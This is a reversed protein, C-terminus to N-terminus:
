LDAAYVFGGQRSIFYVSCCRRRYQGEGSIEEYHERDLQHDQTGCFFSIISLVVKICFGTLAPLQETLYEKFNLIDKLSQKVSTGDLGMNQLGQDVKDATESLTDM